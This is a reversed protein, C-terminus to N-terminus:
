LASQGVCNFESPVGKHNQDEQQVMSGGHNQDEKQPWQVAIRDFDLAHGV